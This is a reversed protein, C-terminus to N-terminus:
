GRFNPALMLGFYHSPLTYWRSEEGPQSVPPSPLSPSSFLAAKGLSIWIPGLSSSASVSLFLYQDAESAGKRGGERCLGAAAGPLGPERERRGMTKGFTGDDSATRERAQSSALRFYSLSHYLSLADLPAPFTHRERGRGGSSLWTISKDLALFSEQFAGREWDGGGGCNALSLEHQM